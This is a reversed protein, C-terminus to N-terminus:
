VWFVGGVKGLYMVKNQKGENSGCNQNKWGRGASSVTTGEEDSAGCAGFLARKVERLAWITSCYRGYTRGPLKMRALCLEKCCCCSLTLVLGKSVACASHLRPFPMEKTWMESFQFALVCIQPVLSMTSGSKWKWAKICVHCDGNHIRTWTLQPFDPYRHTHMCTQTESLHKNDKTELLICLDFLYSSWPNSITPLKIAKTQVGLLMNQHESSM